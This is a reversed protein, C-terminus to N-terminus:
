TKKSTTYTKKRKKKYTKEKIYMSSSTSSSTCQKTDANCKSQKWRKDAAQKRKEYRIVQNEKEKKLRESVLCGDRKAFIPDDRWQIEQFIKLFKKKTLGLVKRIMEPDDKIKYQTKTDMWIHSLLRIYVGQAEYSMRIVKYDLWDKPYFQFSPSKNM